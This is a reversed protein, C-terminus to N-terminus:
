VTAARLPPPLSIGIGAGPYWHRQPQEQFFVFSRGHQQSFELLEDTCHANDGLITGGPALKAAIMEYEQREYTASHDSDNIFLDIPQTMAALTALSDGYIVQGCTAYAGKLLYGAHPNIDTGVYRGAHGESANRRLAACLVCAGLGKDVGTEVVLSPKTLRVIAYWGLRRGYRPEPDAYRGQRDGAMTQRLFQRLEEDGHLEALYGAVTAVPCGFLHALLTSLHLENRATLEYTFNTLENSTWLWKAWAALPDRYHPWPMGLRRPLFRLRVLLPMQRLKAKIPGLM